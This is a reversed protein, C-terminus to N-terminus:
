GKVAGAALGKVFWRMTFLFMIILPLSAVSFAAMIHGWQKVYEGELYILGVGVPFLEPDRLIVLPLVFSNWNELFMVIALTGIVPLSMPIVINRIQALHSAGDIEAAEFLDRPIEEIFNRLVFICFAQAGAMGVIILAWLTNLLSMRKLLSFLPVLNAISPMMMLVMFALFLMAGGPMRYRAFFYAGLVALVLAGATALVAVFITNALYPVILHIAFRWNEWHWQSPADPLWPSALFQQNDKFSIHAMMYVPFLQIALLGVIVLHKGWDSGSRGPGPAIRKDAAIPVSM